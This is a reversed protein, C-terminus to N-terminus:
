RLLNPVSEMRQLLLDRQFLAINKERKKMGRLPRGCGKTKGGKNKLIRCHKKAIVGYSSKGEAARSLLQAGRLM